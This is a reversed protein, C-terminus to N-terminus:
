KSGSGPKSSGRRIWYALNARAIRSYPHQPGLVRELLPVLVAYQERAAPDGTRGTWSALNARATLTDPHEPGLVRERLPVLAAYQDRAATPDGAEGTWRALNARATLTDPHEPGLVGELSPLLAAYQDRAGAPDGAEGTWYALNSIATLTDPHEPGSTRELGPLLAACQDRAVAPDRRGGAPPTLDGHTARAHPQGPGSTREDLPPLAADRNRIGAPDGAQQRSRALNARATLTDPHEPGLIQELAPLLATYQDRAAAADGAEGTFSALDGRATLTDPHEPGLIQECPPCCRPTSTAPAPRTGRRAPGTLGPRRPRHPHRPARPRPDTGPRAAARHVPRPRRGCRGGRRHLLRPRRPRHPHRPARPRPDRELAPLLATYQDRAGAPDGAEGTWRALDGRATLTDPHEPGLIQELAPLLATYQDRAGAPDGAEGTWHALDGRATLTDPHEPGLIQELAPLLATYQDRAGAPDGAEGTWRALDGRATLTDPHEPGLIQELAPLLATYQDRAAAADGAEGTFSALSGRYILTDPHDPGLIGEITVLLTAYQDRAGAPDGAEVTWRALNDRATLTDPHEPGLVQELAPVLATYQDRAAPADGTRGTWFALKAGAILTDPHERGLSQVRAEHVERFRERAVESSGSFGLYSAIRAMGDSDASLVAQAHPLLAAFIPWTDRQGKEPPIAAELVAAAAQRWASALEAPMQDATAAQVLQHVSVLNDATSTILSYRRLVTVADNAAPPDELLPMLRPVVERSLQGALEPRPQLLLRLPIEEPACFALLRLLGVAGPESQELRVFALAWTTAATKGSRISKGLGRTAPRRQRFAALYDALSDGAAQGYAAAQALALPLGGLEGALDGAAQRDAEGTSNVLFDAGVETDLTPVKLVEGSPWHQNQSTVLVRGHGAPPLFPRVSAQDRANDFILLWGAPFTALIEHVWAVPDRSDPADRRGLQGALENFGAVLVALNEAALQWAVRVEALHRHAYEVAVSTKGSGAQGCLAVIRPETGEDGSLRADLEALLAERGALLTPRAALRMPQGAADWWRRALGVSEGGRDALHPGPGFDRAFRPRAVQNGPGPRGSPPPMVSRHTVEGAPGGREAGLNASRRAAVPQAAATVMGGPLAAQIGEVLARLDAEVSPDEELLDALRRVWQAVLGSRISEADTGVAAAIQDHTEALQREALKTRDPDGRGLLRAFRQRAAEWTETTAIAVVTSGALSALAM